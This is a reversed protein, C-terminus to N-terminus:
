RWFRRPLRVIRADERGQATDDDTMDSDERGAKVGEDVDADGEAMNVSFDGGAASEYGGSQDEM